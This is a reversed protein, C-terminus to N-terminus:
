NDGRLKDKTRTFNGMDGTVMSLGPKLGDGHEKIDPWHSPGGRYAM